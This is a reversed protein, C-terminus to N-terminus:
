LAIERQLREDITVPPLLGHEADDEVLHKAGPDVLDADDHSGAVLEGVSTDCAIMRCAEPKRVLVIRPTVAMGDVARAIEDTVVGEQVEDAIMKVHAAGILSTRLMQNLDRLR